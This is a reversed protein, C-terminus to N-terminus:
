GTELESHSILYASILGIGLLSASLVGLVYGSPALASLLLIFGCFFTSLGTFTRIIGASFIIQFLGSFSLTMAAILVPLSLGTFTQDIKLATSVALGICLIILPLRIFGSEHIEEPVASKGEDQFNFTSRDIEQSSGIAFRSPSISVMSVILLSSFGSVLLVLGLQPSFNILVLSFVAVLQLGLTLNMWRWDRFCILLFSCVIILITPLFHWNEAVLNMRLITNFLDLEISAADAFPEM